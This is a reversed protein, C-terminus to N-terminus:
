LTLKIMASVVSENDLGSIGYKNHWFSYEIGVQVHDSNEFYHGVDVLLQPNFHFEAKHDDAASSWDFFGNFTIKHDLSPFDYGWVMTLQYDNDTNDNNAYYVNAQVFKFHPIALNTGIGLLVNDFSGFTNSSHEINAALFTDQIFSLAVPQDLLYSLSLRPSVEGYTGKFEVNDNDAKALTRDAFMFLDGWNHGSAHEFTFVNVTDNTLVEFDSTNKLYSFSNKSWLTQAGANGIFALPLSLAIISTTFHKM